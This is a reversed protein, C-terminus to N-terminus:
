AKTTLNLILFRLISENLKLTNRIRAVAHPNVNFHILYYVGEQKKKIPYALQRRESWLNSDIVKGENKTITEQIFNILQSRENDSLGADLIIMAEYKNM